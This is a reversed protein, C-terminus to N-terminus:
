HYPPVWWASEIFRISISLENESKQVATIKGFTSQKGPIGPFTCRLTIPEDVKFPSKAADSLQFICRAGSKSIDRIIGSVFQGKHIAEITASLSCQIRKHDRLDYKKVETPVEIRWLLVPCNLIELIRSKFEYMNDQFLCQANLTEGQKKQPSNESLPVVVFDSNDEPGIFLGEMTGSKGEEVFKLLAGRKLKLESKEDTM